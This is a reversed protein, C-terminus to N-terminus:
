EPFTAQADEVLQRMASLYDKFGKMVEDFPLPSSDEELAFGLLRFDLQALDISSFQSMLEQFAKRAFEKRAGERQRELEEESEGEITFRYRWAGPKPKLSIMTVGERGQAPDHWIEIADVPGGSVEASYVELPLRSGEKQLVNRLQAIVDFPIPSAPIAAKRAEWWSDFNAGHKSRLDHQLVWTISRAASVLASFYYRFEPRKGGTEEAKRLFFEAEELRDLARLM